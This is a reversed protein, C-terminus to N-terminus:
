TIYMQQTFYIPLAHHFFHHTHSHIVLSMAVFDEGEGIVFLMEVVLLPLITPAFPLDDLTFLIGCRESLGVSEAREERSEARPSLVCGDEGKNRPVLLSVLDAESTSDEAVRVLEGIEEGLDVWPLDGMPAEVLVVEEVLVVVEVLDAVEEGFESELDEEVFDMELDADEGVRRALTFLLNFDGLDFSLLPLSFPSFPSFLWRELDELFVSLSAGSSPFFFSFFSFFTLFTFFFFFFFTFFSSSSSSSSSDCGRQFLEVEVGPLNLTLAHSSTSLILASLPSREGVRGTPLNDSAVIFFICLSNNM